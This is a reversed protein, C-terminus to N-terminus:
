MNNSFHMFSLVVHAFVLAFNRMNGIMHVVGTYFSMNGFIYFVMTFRTFVLTANRMNDVIHAFGLYFCINESVHALLIARKRFCADFMDSFTFFGHLFLM